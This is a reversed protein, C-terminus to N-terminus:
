TFDYLQMLNVLKQQYFLLKKKVGLLNRNRARRVDAFYKPHVGTPKTDYIKQLKVVTKGLESIKTIYTKRTLIASQTAKRKRQQYQIKVIQPRTQYGSKALKQLRQQENTRADAERARARLELDRQQRENEKQKQKNTKGKTADSVIKLYHLFSAMQAPPLGSSSLQDTTPINSFEGGGGGIAAEVVKPFAAIAERIYTGFLVMSTKVLPTMDQMGQSMTPIMTKTESHLRMLFDNPTMANVEENSMGSVKRKGFQWGAGGYYMIAFGQTALFSLMMPNPVATFGSIPLSM